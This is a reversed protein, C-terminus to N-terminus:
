NNERIFFKKRLLLVMMVFMGIGGGILLIHTASKKIDVGTQVIDGRTNEYEVVRVENVDGITGTVEGDGTALGNITTTYEAIQDELIAYKVTMSEGSYSFLIKYGHALQFELVGAADEMVVKGTRITENMANIIKFGIDEDSDTFEARFDFLKTKDGFDGTVIKSVIPWANIYTATYYREAFDSVKPAPEPYNDVFIAELAREDLVLQTGVFPEPLDLRWEDVPYNNNRVYLVEDYGFRLASGLVTTTSIVGFDYPIGYVKGEPTDDEIRLKTYDKVQASANGIMEVDRVYIEIPTYFNEITSSEYMKSLTGDQNLFIVEFWYITNRDAKLTSFIHEYRDAEVEEFGRHEEDMADYRAKFNSEDYQTSDAVPVRFWKISTVTGGPWFSDIYAATVDIDIVDVTNYIKGQIDSNDAITTVRTSAPKWLYAKGAGDANAIYEYVAGGNLTNVQYSLFKDADTEIEYMYVRDGVSNEVIITNMNNAYINGSSIRINAINAGLGPGIGYGGQSDAQVIPAQNAAYVAYIEIDGGSGSTAGGGGGIGAGIGETQATVRTNERITILGGSGAVGTASGGGGIGAGIGGAVSEVIAMGSVTITGGTGGVEPGAGGGIGAGNLGSKVTLETSESISIMGGDGGVTTASGGGGIGAGNAGSEAQVKANGEITINGGFGAIGMQSGGGGIGAGLRNGSAEVNAKETILITGASGGTQYGGGGGIGAGNDDSKAVVKASGAILIEGSMGAHTETSGGGGIGAGKGVSEAEVNADTITITGGIGAVANAAGGGGIGAGFGGSKAMITATNGDGGITIIEGNGGGAPGAGGGIGAGNLGSTATVVVSGVITITGSAGGIGNINDDSGGGGIGAGRGTANAVIEANDKITIIGGNGAENFAAGSGGIGAGQERSIATVKANGGITIVGGNGPMKGISSGYPSRGGGGIGAGKRESIATVTAEGEITIVGGSGPGPSMGSAANNGGGGAGGIGAGHGRSIAYVVADGGIYIGASSGGGSSHGGGGGIAAGNDTGLGDLINNSFSRTEVIINGGKITIYGANQNCGGGIGASYAGALVTLEGQIRPANPESGDSDVGELYGSEITLSSVPQMDTAHASVWIGAEARTSSASAGDCEFVNTTGDRVIIRVNSNKEITIPSLSAKRNANNLILVVEVDAPTDIRIRNANSTYSNIVEYVGASTILRGEAGVGEDIIETVVYTQYVGDTTTIYTSGIGGVGYPIMGFIEADESDSVTEPEPEANTDEEGEGFMVAGEELDESEGTEADLLVVFNGEEVNITIQAFIETMKLGIVAVIMLLALVIFPKNIRKM